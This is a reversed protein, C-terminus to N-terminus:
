KLYKKYVLEYADKRIIRGGWLDSEFDDSQYVLLDKSIVYRRNPQHLYTVDITPMKKPNWSLIRDYFSQQVAYAHCQYIGGFAPCMRLNETLPLCEINPEGGLYFVDWEITKLEEICKNLKKIFDASFICDDEFILINEFKNQSAIKILEIHSLIGGLKYNRRTDNRFDDTLDNKVSEEELLYASFRPISLGLDSMQAEFSVRRDIRKDLNIYYSSKFYDFYM